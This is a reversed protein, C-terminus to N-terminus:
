QWNDGSDESRYYGLWIPGAAVPNGDEDNTNYVGCYDNSSGLLVDTDRPDVAVSPENQRGHARSCEDLTADTYSDDGTVLEYNSKYGGCEEASTAPLPTTCDRILRSDADPTSGSAVA